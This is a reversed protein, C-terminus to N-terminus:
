ETTMVAVLPATVAEVVTGTVTVGAVAVTADGLTRDPLAKEAATVSLMVATPEQVADAVGASTVPRETEPELRDPVAGAFAPVAATVRARDAVKVPGATLEPLRAAAVPVAVRV